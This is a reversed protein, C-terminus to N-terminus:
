FVYDFLILSVGLELTSEEPLDVLTRVFHFHQSCYGSFLVFDLLPVWKHLIQGIEIQSM